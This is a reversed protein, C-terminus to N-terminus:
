RTRAKRLMAIEKAYGDMDNPTELYFPLDRLAPHNVIRVLADMGIAGEGLKAHRDKKEGLGFMSDNLHIAKLRKLGITEDFNALVAELDGVIDYGAAFVHCTDLCVGLRRKNKSAKIIDRIEEFRGGVEAGRGSMTEILLTTHKHKELAHDFSSAVVKETADTSPDFGKPRSGPHINYLNGPTREMRDLDDGITERVFEMMHGDVTGPNLIYSAHALIPKIDHERAFANFAAVDDPDLAKAKSGRPNRLFFQFTNAGIRVAERAMNLYGKASSIHCGIRFM